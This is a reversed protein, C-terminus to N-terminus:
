EMGPDNERWLGLRTTLLIDDPFDLRELDGIPYEIIVAPMVSLSSLTKPNLTVILM